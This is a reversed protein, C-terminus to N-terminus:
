IALNLDHTETANPTEVTTSKFFQLNNDLAKLNDEPPPEDIWFDRFEPFRLCVLSIAFVAALIPVAPHLMMIPPIFSTLCVLLLSHMVTNVNRAGKTYAISADLEKLYAKDTTSLNKHQNYEARMKQLRAIDYHARMAAFIVECFKVAVTIYAALWATATTLLFVAIFGALVSPFDNVLNFLRDDIDAHAKFRSKFPIAQKEFSRKCLVLGNVLTRPLYVLFGAITLVPGLFQVFTKALTHNDGFTEPFLILGLCIRRVNGILLRTTDSHYTTTQVIGPLNFVDNLPADAPAKLLQKLIVKDQSFKAKAPMENLREHLSELLEAMSLATQTLEKTTHTDPTSQNVHAVLQACLARYQVRWLWASEALKSFDANEWSKGPSIIQQMELQRIILSM